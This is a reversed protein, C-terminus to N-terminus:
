TLLIHDPLDQIDSSSASQAMTIGIQMVQMLILFTRSIFNFKMIGVVKPLMIM